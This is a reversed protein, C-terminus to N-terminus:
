CMNEGVYVSKGNINGCRGKVKFNGNVANRKTQVSPCPRQQFSLLWCLYYGCRDHTSSLSRRSGKPVADTYFLKHGFSNWDVLRITQVQLNGSTHQNFSPQWYPLLSDSFGGMQKHIM